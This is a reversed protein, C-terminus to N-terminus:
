RVIGTGVRGDGVLTFEKKVFGYFPHNAPVPGQDTILARCENREKFARVESCVAEMVSALRKQTDSGQRLHAFLSQLQNEIRNFQNRNKQTRRKKSPMCTDGEEEGRSRKLIMMRVETNSEKWFEQEIPSLTIPPTDGQALRREFCENLIAERLPPCNKWMWKQGSSLFDPLEERDDVTILTNEQSM